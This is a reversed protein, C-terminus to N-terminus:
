GVLLRVASHSIFSNFSCMLSVLQHEREITINLSQYLYHHRLVSTWHDSMYAIVINSSSSTYNDVLAILGLVKTFVLKFLNDRDSIPVDVQLLTKM